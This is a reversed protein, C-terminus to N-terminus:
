VKTSDPRRAYGASAKSTRVSSNDRHSFASIWLLFEAIFQVPDLGELARPVRKGQGLPSSNCSAAWVEAREKPGVRCGLPASFSIPASLKASSSTAGSASYALAVEWDASVRTRARM